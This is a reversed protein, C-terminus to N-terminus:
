EGRAARFQRAKRPWRDPCPLRCGMALILRDFPLADGIGLQVRRWRLGIRNAVTNLWANM